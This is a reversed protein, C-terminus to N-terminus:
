DVRRGWRVRAWAKEHLVYSIFGLATATVALASGQAVSGIFVYGLLTMMLLGMAQWCIAKAVVRANTDM